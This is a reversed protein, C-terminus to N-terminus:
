LATEWSAGSLLPAPAICASKYLSSYHVGIWFSGVRPILNLYVKGIKM